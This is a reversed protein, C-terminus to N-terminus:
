QGKGTQAIENAITWRLQKLNILRRFKLSLNNKSFSQLLPPSTLCGELPWPGAFLTAGTKNIAQIAAKSRRLPDNDMALWKQETVGTFLMFLDKKM